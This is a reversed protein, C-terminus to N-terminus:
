LDTVQFKEFNHQLEIQAKGPFPNFPVKEKCIDGCHTVPVWMSHTWCNKGWSNQTVHCIETIRTENPVCM